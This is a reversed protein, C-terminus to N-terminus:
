IHILSLNHHTVFPRAAAGIELTHLVPTDVELYGRADLFQRILSTIRSRKIFTDKVEPNIILDLYRQRYRTQRKYVDLHTYSVAQKSSLVVGMERKVRELVREIREPESPEVLRMAIRRATEDEQAFVRPLYINDKVAVVEGKLIMDQLVDAVEKAQLRLAPVPIKNNLLRLAEKQLTEGPLFLHGKSGKGDELAWFLAGKVRMPDHLDGGNKQVIADVRM